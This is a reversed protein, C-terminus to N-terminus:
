GSEQLKGASLIHSTRAFSTPFNWFVCGRWLVSNTLPGGAVADPARLNNKQWKRSQLRYGPSSTRDNLLSLCLTQGIAQLGIPLAFFSFPAMQRLQSVASLFVKQTVCAFFLPPHAQRDSRFGKRSAPTGSCLGASAALTWLQFSASSSRASADDSCVTSSALSRSIAM